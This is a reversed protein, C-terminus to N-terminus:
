CCKINMPFEPMKLIKGGSGKYKDKKNYKVGMKDLLPEVAVQHM